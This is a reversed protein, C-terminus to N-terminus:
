FRTSALIVILALMALRMLRGTTPAVPWSLYAIWGIFLFVLAFAVMAVPIPAFAGIVVLVLTVAPTVLRPLAHMRALM